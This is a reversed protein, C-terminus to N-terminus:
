QGPQRLLKLVDDRDLNEARGQSRIDPRVGGVARGPAPANVTPSPVQPARVTVTPAPTHVEPVKVTPTRAEPERITVTPTRVTPTPMEPERITVTPTKVTPAPTSVTPDNVTPVTVTPQPGAQQAEATSIAVGAAGLALLARLVERPSIRQM